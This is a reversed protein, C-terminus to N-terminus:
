VFYRAALENLVDNVSHVHITTREGIRISNSLTDELYRLISAGSLTDAEASLQTLFLRLVREDDPGVTGLEVRARVHLKDADHEFLLVGIPWLVGDAREFRLVLFDATKNCM